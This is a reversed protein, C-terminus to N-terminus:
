NHSIKPIVIRLVGNKILAKIQDCKYSQPDIYFRCCYKRPCDEVGYESVDKEETEEADVCLKHDQMWVRMGSKGVGPM